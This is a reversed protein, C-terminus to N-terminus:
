SLTYVPGVNWKVDDSFRRGGSESLDAVCCSVRGENRRVNTSACLRAGALLERVEDEM